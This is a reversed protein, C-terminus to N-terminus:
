CADKMNTALFFDFRSHEYSFEPKIMTYEPLELIDKNRLAELVLKNPLRSDLSVRQGNYSVRILDYCTKRKEKLLRRLFVETGPILLEHMRGPNQLFTLSIGDGIKVLSVFRNQRKWFVGRIIKGEINISSVL